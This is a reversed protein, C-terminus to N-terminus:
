GRLRKKLEKKLTQDESSVPKAVNKLYHFQSYQHPVGPLLDKVARVISRQKDSVVGMVKIGLSLVEEILSKIGETDGVELNRALITNGSICDRLIYLTENGKEPQVGDIALVVGRKRMLALEEGEPRTSILIMYLNSLERVVSKSVVIGYGRLYERIQELTQEKQFRLWGVRAIVDFGYQRHKLNVLPGKIPVERLPCSENKCVAVHYVV